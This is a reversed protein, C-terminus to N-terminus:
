KEYLLKYNQDKEVILHTLRDKANITIPKLRPISITYDSNRNVFFDIRGSSDIKGSLKSRTKNETINITQNEINLDRLYIKLCTLNSKTGTLNAAWDQVKDNATRNVRINGTVTAKLLKNQKNIIESSINSQHYEFFVSTPTEAITTSTSSGISGTGVNMGESVNEFIFIYPKVEGPKLNMYFYDTLDYNNQSTSSFILRVTTTKILHFVGKIRINLDMNTPNHLRGSIFLNYKNNGQIFDRNDELWDNTWNRDGEAVWYHGDIIEISNSVFDDLKKKAEGAYYTGSYKKIFSNLAEHDNKNIKFYIEGALRDAKTLGERDNGNKNYGEANYGEKDYGEKDYGYRDYGATNYHKEIKAAFTKDYSDRSMGVLKQYDSEKYSSEEISKIIKQQLDYFSKKHAILASMEIFTKSGPAILQIRSLDNDTGTFDLSQLDKRIKNHLKEVEEKDIQELMKIQQQPLSSCIAKSAFLMLSLFILPYLLRKM